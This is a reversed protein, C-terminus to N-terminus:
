NNHLLSSHRIYEYIIYVLIVIISILFYHVSSLTISGFHEKAEMLYNFIPHLSIQAHDIVSSFMDNDFITIKPYCAYVKIKHGQAIYCIYQDIHMEIPFANDYLIKACKPTIIYGGTNTLKSGDIIHKDIYEIEQQPPHYTLRLLDFKHKQAETFMIQLSEPSQLELVDDEFIAITRNIDICHKWLNIHSLSCGVAAVTNMTEYAYRPGGHVDIYARPSLMQKLDSESIKKGIVGDSFAFSEFGLKKINKESIIARNAKTKNITICYAPIDSLRM